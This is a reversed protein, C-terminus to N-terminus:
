TLHSKSRTRKGLLLAVLSLAMQSKPLVRPLWASGPAPPTLVRSVLCIFRFVSPQPTTKLSCPCRSVWGLGWGHVSCASSHELLHCSLCSAHCSGEM